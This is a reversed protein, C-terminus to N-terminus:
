LAREHVPQLVSIKKELLICDLLVSIPDRIGSPAIRQITAEDPTTYQTYQLLDRFKQWDENHVAKLVSAM